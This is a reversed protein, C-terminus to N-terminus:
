DWVPWAEWSPAESSEDWPKYGLINEVEEETYYARDEQDLVTGYLIENMIIEKRINLQECLSGIMGEVIPCPSTAIKVISNLIAFVFAWANNVCLSSFIM